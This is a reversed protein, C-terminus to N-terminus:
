CPPCMLAVQQGVAAQLLMSADTATVAGSDDVDCVCLACMENGVAAQLAFLADTASVMRDAIPDGCVRGLPVTTTTLTLTTSSSTSATSAPASDMRQAALEGRSALFVGTLALLALAAALRTRM